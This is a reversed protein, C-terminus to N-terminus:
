GREPNFSGKRNPM